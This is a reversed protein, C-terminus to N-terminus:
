KGNARRRKYCPSRSIELTRLSRVAQQVCLPSVPDTSDARLSGSSSFSDGVRGSAPYSRENALNVPSCPLVDAPGLAVLGDDHERRVYVSEDWKQMANKYATRHRIATSKKKEGWWCM